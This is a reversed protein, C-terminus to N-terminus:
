TGFIIKRDEFLMGADMNGSVDGQSLLLFAHLFFSTDSMRSLKGRQALM